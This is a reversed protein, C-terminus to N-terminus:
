QGREWSKEGKEIKGHNTVKLGGIKSKLFNSEIIHVDISDIPCYINLYKITSTDVHVLKYPKHVTPCNYLSDLSGSKYEPLRNLVNQFVNIVSNVTVIIEEAAEEAEEIEENDILNKVIDMDLTFKKSDVKLFAAKLEDIPTAPLNKMRDHIFEVFGALRRAEMKVNQQLNDLSDRMVTDLTAPINSLIFEETVVFENLKTIISDLGGKIVSDIYTAYETDTKLFDIVKFLSDTYVDNYKQYQLEADFISSMRDRCIKTNLEEQETVKKPYIISAVLVAALVVILFEYIISGKAKEEAM